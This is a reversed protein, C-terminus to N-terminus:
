SCCGCCPADECRGRANRYVTEGSSFTTYIIEGGMGSGGGGKRGFRGRSGGGTVRKAPAPGAVIERAAEADAEDFRWGKSAADWEGGMARLAVRHPYTNGTVLIKM